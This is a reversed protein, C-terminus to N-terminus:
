SCALDKWRRIDKRIEKKLAKSNKYIDKVQKTLTVGLYQINNTAQLPHQEGTNKRQWKDNTHLLTTSKKPTIKTAIKNCSISLFHCLGV